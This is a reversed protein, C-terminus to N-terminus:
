QRRQRRLSSIRRPQPNDVDWMQRLHLGLAKPFEKDISSALPLAEMFGAGILDRVTSGAAAAFAQELYGLIEDVRVREGGKWLEVVYRAADSIALYALLGGEYNNSEDDVFAQFEPFRKALAGMFVEDGKFLVDDDGKDSVTTSHALCSSPM